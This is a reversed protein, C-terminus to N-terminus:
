CLAEAAAIKKAYNNMGDQEDGLAAVIPYAYVILAFFVVQVSSILEAQQMSAAGGPGNSLGPPGLRGTPVRAALITLSNASSCDDQDGRSLQSRGLLKPPGRSHFLSLELM